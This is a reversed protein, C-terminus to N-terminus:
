IEVKSKEVNIELRKKDLYEEMKDLMSRLEEEEDALLVVDDAYALCYEGGGLRIKRGWKIKRLEEEMDALLINFLLLSLPCSQRVGRGRWFREKLEKKVKM